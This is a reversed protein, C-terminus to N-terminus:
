MSLKVVIFLFLTEYSNFLFVGLKTDKSYEYRGILILLVLIEVINQITILIASNIKNM